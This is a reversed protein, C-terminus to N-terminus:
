SRHRRPVRQVVWSERSANATNGANGSPNTGDANMGSADGASSGRQAYTNKVTKIDNKNEASISTASELCEFFLKATESTVNLGKM